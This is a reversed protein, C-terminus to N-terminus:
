AARKIPFQIEVLAADFGPPGTIPELFVERCPGDIEYNNAEIWRGIVGFSTHSTANTGPRVVTAMTAVGPLESAQLVYDGAIRVQANSPRTLSYGIDLDLKSDDRDNRAVVILKDRLTPRLQRGGDEAVARVLRVVEDMGDCCVRVSLFPTPSISKVVVDYGEMNGQTDIQAIRSEIHRLRAQEESLLHEVQARKMALMGRLEALSIENGLLPGIQDLSFGLEKLALIRNLRPLQQISYYRYGTQPDAHAPRLLGIQDYFRLQRGSVQAIQAFEGIRFM